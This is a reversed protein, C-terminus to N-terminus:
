NYLATPRSAKSNTATSSFPKSNTPILVIDRVQFYAYFSIMIGFTCVLETLRVVTIIRDKLMVVVLVTSILITTLIFGLAIYCLVVKRSKELIIKSDESSMQGRTVNLKANRAAKLILYGLLIDNVAALIILMTGFIFFNIPTEPSNTIMNIVCLIWTLVFDAIFIPRPITLIAHFASFRYISTSVYLGVVLMLLILDRRFNRIGILCDSMGISAAIILTFSTIVAGAVLVRQVKKYFESLMALLVLNFLYIAGLIFYDETPCVM